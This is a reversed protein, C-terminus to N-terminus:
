ELVADSLTSDAWPSSFSTVATRNRLAIVSVAEPAFGNRLM